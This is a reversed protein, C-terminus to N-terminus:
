RMHPFLSLYVIHIMLNFHVLDGVLNYVVLFFFSKNEGWKLFLKM